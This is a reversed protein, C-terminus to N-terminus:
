YLSISTGLHTYAYNIIIIRHIVKTRRSSSNISIIYMCLVLVSDSMHYLIALYKTMWRIRTCGCEM